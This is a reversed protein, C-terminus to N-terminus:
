CHHVISQSFGGESGSARTGVKGTTLDGYAQIDATSAYINSHSNDTSVSYHAPNVFDFQTINILSHDSIPLAAATGASLCLTVASLVSFVQKKM